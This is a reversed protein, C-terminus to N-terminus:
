FDIKLKTGDTFFMTCMYLGSVEQMKKDGYGLDSRIDEIFRDIKPKNVESTTFFRSRGFPSPSSLM